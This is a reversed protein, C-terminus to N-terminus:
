ESLTETLDQDKQPWFLNCIGSSAIDYSISHINWNQDFKHPIKDINPNHWYLM